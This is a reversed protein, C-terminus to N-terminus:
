TATHSLSFSLSDTNTISFFAFNNKSINKYTHSVTLCGLQCPLNVRVQVKVVGLFMVAGRSGHTFNHSHRHTHTHTHTSYTDAHTHSSSPGTDATRFPLSFLGTARSQALILQNSHTVCVC